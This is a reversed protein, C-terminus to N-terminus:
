GRAEGATAALAAKMGFHKIFADSPKAIAVFLLGLEEVTARLTEAGTEDLLSSLANFDDESDSALARITAIATARGAAVVPNVPEPTV